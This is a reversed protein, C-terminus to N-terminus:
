AFPMIKLRPPHKPASMSTFSWLSLPVLGNEHKTKIKHVNSSAPYVHHINRLGNGRATGACTGVGVQSATPGTTVCSVVVSSPNHVHVYARTSPLSARAILSLLRPLILFYVSDRCQSWLPNASRWFPFRAVRSRMCAEIVPSLQIFFISRWWIPMSLHLTLQQCGGMSLDEAQHHVQKLQFGGLLQHFQDTPNARSQSSRRLSRAWFGGWILGHLSWFFLQLSVSVCFLTFNWFGVEPGRNVMPWWLICFFFCLVM